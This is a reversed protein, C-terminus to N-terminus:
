FFEEWEAMGDDGAGFDYEEVEDALAEVESLLDQEATGFLGLVEWLSMLFIASAFGEAFAEETVDDLLEEIREGDRLDFHEDAENLFVRTHDIHSSEKNVLSGTVVYGARMAAKGFQGLVKNVPEGDKQIDIAVGGAHTGLEYDYPRGKGTNKEFWDNLESVESDLEARLLDKDAM